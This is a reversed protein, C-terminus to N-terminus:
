QIVSADVWIAPRVGGYPSSVYRGITSISGNEFVFQAIKNSDGMSRLWWWAYGDTLQIGNAKAYPTPTVRRSMADGLYYNVEDLSLLFVNDATTIEGYGGYWSSSNTLLANKEENTFANYYFNNNLWDRITSYDWNVEVWNKNFGMNILAFRSLLLAKEDDSYLVLWEISEQGNAYNNDQEFSGFRVTNSRSSYTAPQNYSNNNSNGGKNGSSNSGSTMSSKGYEGCCCTVTDTETGILHHEVKVPSYSESCVYCEKSGNGYDCCLTYHEGEMLTAGCDLCFEWHKTETTYVYTNRAMHDCEATANFPFVTVLSAFVLVIAMLIRLHSKM